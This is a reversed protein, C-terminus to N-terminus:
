KKDKKVDARPAAGSSVVVKAHRIVRKKLTYGREFVEAIHDDPIKADPIKMLADHLQPDFKEGAKGFVALGNKTLISDFKEFILKMGELLTGADRCQEGSKVARELNERVEVLEGVLKENATEILREFDRNTRKKFNDFEAMLRLYSDNQAELQKKLDEVPDPKPMAGSVAAVEPPEKRDVPTEAGQQAPLGEKGQHSNKDSM